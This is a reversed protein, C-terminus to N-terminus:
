VLDCDKGVYVHLHLIVQCNLSSFIHLLFYCMAIICPMVSVPSVTYFFVVM